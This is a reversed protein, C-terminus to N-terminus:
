KPKAAIAPPRLRRRREFAPSTRHGVIQGFRAVLKREGVAHQRVFAHQVSEAMHAHAVRGIGAAIQERTRTRRGHDLGGIDQFIREIGLRDLRWRHLEIRLTDDMAADVLRSRIHHGDAVMMRRRHHREAHRANRDNRNKVQASGASLRHREPVLAILEAVGVHEHDFGLFATREGAREARM